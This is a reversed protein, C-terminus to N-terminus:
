PQPGRLATEITQVLLHFNLPKRMFVFAGRIDESVESPERGSIILVPLHSLHSAEITRLVAVGDLVPLGLDLLVCDPTPAEKFIAILGEIGDAAVRVSYGEAELIGELVLGTTEDDDIVIIRPIHGSPPLTVAAEDHQDADSM